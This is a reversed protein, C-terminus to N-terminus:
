PPTSSARAPTPRGGCVTQGPGTASQARADAIGSTGDKGFSPWSEPRQSAGSGKLLMTMALAALCRSRSASHTM